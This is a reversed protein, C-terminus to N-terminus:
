LVWFGLVLGIRAANLAGSVIAAFVTKPKPNWKKERNLYPLGVAWPVWMLTLTTCLAITEVLNVPQWWLLFAITFIGYMWALIAMGRRYDAYEPVRGVEAFTSAAILLSYLIFVIQTAIAM